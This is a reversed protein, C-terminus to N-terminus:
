HYDVMEVDFADGDIWRFCIRWQRNVRFSWLGQRDGGLKELRNSPPLRLDDVQVANNLIVLKVRAAVQLSRDMKKVVVGHFIAATRKDAFDKIM